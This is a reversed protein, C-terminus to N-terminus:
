RVLQAADIRNQLWNVQWHLHPGTVRGTRGIEAIKQGQKVVDGEQVLIKSLHLFASAHSPDILRLAIVSSSAPMCFLCM